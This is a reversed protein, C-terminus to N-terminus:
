PACAEGGGAERCKKTLEDELQKRDMTKLRGIDKVTAAKQAAIAKKMAATTEAVGAAHGRGYAKDNVIWGGVLSAVLLAAFAYGMM